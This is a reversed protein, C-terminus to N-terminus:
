IQKIRLNIGDENHQIQEIKTFIKQIQQESSAIKENLVSEGKRHSNSANREIIEVLDDIIKNKKNLEMKNKVLLDGLIKIKRLYLM